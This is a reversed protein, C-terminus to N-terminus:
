GGVARGVAFKALEGASSSLASSTSGKVMEALVTSEIGTAATMMKFLGEQQAKGVVEGAIADAAHQTLVEGTRGVVEKATKESVTGRQRVEDYAKYLTYGFRAYSYATYTPIAVVGVPPVAASLGYVM